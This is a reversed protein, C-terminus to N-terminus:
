QSCIKLLSDYSLSTRLLKKSRQDELVLFNGKKTFCIDPNKMDLGYKKLENRFIAKIEEKCERHFQEKSIGFENALVRVDKCTKDKLAPLILLNEASITECNAIYIGQSALLKCYLTQEMNTLAISEKVKQHLIKFNTEEDDGLKALNFIWFLVSILVAFFLWNAKLSYKKSPKKTQYKKEALM